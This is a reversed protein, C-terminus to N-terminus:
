FFAAVSGAGSGAARSCTIGLPASASADEDYDAATFGTETGVTDERETLGTWTYSASTGHVCVGVAIGEASVDTDLTIPWTSSASATDTATSSSLNNAQWLCVVVSTVAESFTVVVDESTGATNPLIWIASYQVISTAPYETALTASDGGVTLTSVGYSAQGDEALVGIITHRDASATGTNQGSFTYTTLNTADETCQLFNISAASSGFQFSNILWGAAAPQLGFWLAALVAFLRALKM